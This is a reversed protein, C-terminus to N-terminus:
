GQSPQTKVAQGLPRKKSVKIYYWKKAGMDVMKVNKWKRHM